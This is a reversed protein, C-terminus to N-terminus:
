AAPSTRYHAELGAIWARARDNLCGDDRLLRGRTLLIGLGVGQYRRDGPGTIRLFFAARESDVALGYLDSREFLVRGDDGLGYLGTPPAATVVGSTEGPSGVVIESWGEVGEAERLRRNFGEVDLDFDAGSYELLHFLFLPPLGSSMCARYTVPGAGGIRPNVEGLYVKGTARDLLLDLGFYGRYGTKGLEEGFRVAYDAATGYVAARVEPSCVENGCWYSELTTIERQAVIDILLPGVVTGCRTVCAELTLGLPDIRKMVKVQPEATIASAHAEWDARDAVFCTGHGSEGFSTQVVLDDGLDARRAVALLGEYSDVKCLVNPVSPVGARDGMRVTECKDDCCTRLGAPPFWIDLGLAACLSESTGDFKLFLAAPRAGLARIHAAVEEHALLWNVVGEETGPSNDRVAPHPAFVHPHSGDFCDLRCVYEFGGVWHDIGLLHHSSYGFFCIPRENAHLFSLMEPITRITPM